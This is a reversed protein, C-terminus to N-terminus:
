YWVAGVGFSAVTPLDGTPPHVAAHVRLQPELSPRGTAPVRIGAVDLTLGFGLAHFRTRPWSQAQALGPQSGNTEHFTTHTLAPEYDVGIVVGRWHRHGLFWGGGLLAGVRFPVRVLLYPDVGDVGIPSTVLATLDVGTGLRAGFIASSRWPEPSRLLVVGARLAVGGGGGFTYPTGFKWSGTPRVYSAPKHHFISGEASAGLEPWFGTRPGWSARLAEPTDEPGVRPATVARPPAAEGVGHRVRAVLDWALTESGGDPTQVVVVTGPEERVVKGLISTGDRLVVVDGGESSADEESGQAPAAVAGDDPKAPESGKPADVRGKKVAEGLRGVHALALGGGTAAGQYFFRAGLIWSGLELGTLANVQLTDPVHAGAAPDVSVGPQIALTTPWLDIAYRALLQTPVKVGTSYAFDVAAGAGLHSIGLRKSVGALGGVGVQYVVSTEIDTGTDVFLQLPVAIAAFARTASPADDGFAFRFGPRISGGFQALGDGKGVHLAGALDVANRSELVYTKSLPISLGLVSGSTADFAGGVSLPQPGRAQPPREASRFAHDAAIAQMGTTSASPALAAGQNVCYAQYGRNLGASLAANSSADVRLSGWHCSPGACSVGVNCISCTFNDSQAAQNECQSLGEGFWEEPGALAVRGTGLLAAFVACSLALRGADRVALRRRM